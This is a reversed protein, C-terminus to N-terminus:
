QLTAGLSGGHKYQYNMATRLWMFAIVQCAGALFGGFGSQFAEVGASKIAGLLTPSQEGESEVHEREAINVAVSAVPTSRALLLVSGAALFLIVLGQLRLLSGRKGQVHRKRSGM